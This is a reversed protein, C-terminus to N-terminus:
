KNLYPPKGGKVQGCIARRIYRGFVQADKIPFDLKLSAMIARARSGRTEAPLASMRTKRASPFANRRAMESYFARRFCFPQGKDERRTGYERARVRQMRAPFRSVADEGYRGERKQALCVCHRGSRDNRLLRMSGSIQTFGVQFWCGGESEARCFFAGANEFGM